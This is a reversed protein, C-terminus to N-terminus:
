QQQVTKAEKKKGRYLAGIDPLVLPERKILIENNDNNNNNFWYVTGVHFIGYSVDCLSFAGGVSTWRSAVLCDPRGCCWVSFSQPLALTNSFYRYTKREWEQAILKARGILSLEDFLIDIQAAPYFQRDFTHCTEDARATQSITTQWEFRPSMNFMHKSLDVTM